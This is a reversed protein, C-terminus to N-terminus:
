REEIFDIRHGVARSNYEETEDHAEVLECSCTSGVLCLRFTIM